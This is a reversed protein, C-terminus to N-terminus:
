NKSALRHLAESLERDQILTAVEKLATRTPENLTSSVQRPLLKPAPRAQVIVKISKLQKFEYICRLQKIYHTQLYRLQSMAAHHEAAIGLVGEKFSVVQWNQQPPLMPKALQTLRELHHMQMQLSQLGGRSQSAQKTAPIARIIPKM